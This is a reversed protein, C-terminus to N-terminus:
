IDLGLRFSDPDLNARMLHEMVREQTRLRDRAGEEDVSGYLAAAVIRRRAEFDLGEDQMAMDAQVLARELVKLAMASHPDRLVADRADPFRELYRQVAMRVPDQPPPVPTM